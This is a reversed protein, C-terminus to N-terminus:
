EDWQKTIRNIMVELFYEAWTSKKTYIFGSEKVNDNILEDVDRFVM